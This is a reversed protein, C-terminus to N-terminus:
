IKWSSAVVYVVGDELEPRNNLDEAVEEAEQEDPHYSVISISEVGYAEDYSIVAWLLEPDSAVARQRRTTAASVNDIQHKM